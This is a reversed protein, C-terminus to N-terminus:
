PKAVHGVNDVGVPMGGLTKVPAGAALVVSPVPIFQRTKLTNELPGPTSCCMYSPLPWNIGM